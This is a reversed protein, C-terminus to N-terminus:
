RDADDLMAGNTSIALSEDSNQMRIGLCHKYTYTHVIQDFYVM